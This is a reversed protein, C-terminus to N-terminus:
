VAAADPTACTAPVPARARATATASASTTATATDADDAAADTTASAPQGLQRTPVAAAHRDVSVAVALVVAAIAAILRRHARRAIARVVAALPVRVLQVQRPGGLLPQREEAVQREGRGTLAVTLQDLQQPVREADAADVRIGVVVEGATGLARELEGFEASVEGATRPAADALTASGVVPVREFKSELAYRKCM